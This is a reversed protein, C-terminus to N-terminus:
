TLNVYQRPRLAHSRLAALAASRCAPTLRGDVRLGFADLRRGLATLSADVEATQWEACDIVATVQDRDAPAGDALLMLAVERASAQFGNEGSAPALLATAAAEGLLDADGLLREGALTIVLCRGSRRLAGM